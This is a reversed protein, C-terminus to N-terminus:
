LEYLYRTNIERGFYPNRKKLAEKLGKSPKYLGSKIFNELDM